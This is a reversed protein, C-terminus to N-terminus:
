AREKNHCMSAHRLYNKSLKSALYMIIVTLITPAVAVALDVIQLYLSIM